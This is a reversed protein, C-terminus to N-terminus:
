TSRAIQNAGLLYCPGVPARITPGTCNYGAYTSLTANGGRLVELNTPAQNEGRKAGIEHEERDNRGRRRHNTM